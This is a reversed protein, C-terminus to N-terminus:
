FNEPRLIRNHVEEVRTYGLSDIMSFLDYMDMKLEELDLKGNPNLKDLKLLHEYKKKKLFGTKLTFFKTRLLGYLGQLKAAFVIEQKRRATGSHLAIESYCDSVLLQRRIISIKWEDWQPSSQATEIQNDFDM